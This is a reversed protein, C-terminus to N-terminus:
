ACPVFVELHRPSTLHAGMLGQALQDLTQRLQAAGREDLSAPLGYVEMMTLDQRGTDALPRQMLHGQLGPCLTRARALLERAAAVAAEAQAPDVRYYVFWAPGAGFPLADTQM